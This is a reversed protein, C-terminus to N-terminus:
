IFRGEEVISDGPWDTEREAWPRFPFGPLTKGPPLDYHPLTAMDRALPFFVSRISARSALAIISPFTVTLTM